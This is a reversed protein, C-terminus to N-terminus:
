LEILRLSILFPNQLLVSLLKLPTEWLSFYSAVRLTNISPPLGVINFNFWSFYPLEIANESGEVLLRNLKRLNLPIRAVNHNAEDMFVLM